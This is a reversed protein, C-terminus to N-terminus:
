YPRQRRAQLDHAFHWQNSVSIGDTNGIVCMKAAFHTISERLIICPHETKYPM